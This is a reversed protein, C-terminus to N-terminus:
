YIRILAASCSNSEIDSMVTWPLLAAGPVVVVAGALDGGVGGAMLPVVALVGQVGQVGAGSPTGRAEAVVRALCLAQEWM